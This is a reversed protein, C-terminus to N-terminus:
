SLCMTERCLTDFLATRRWERAGPVIASSTNAGHIAAIMRPKPQRVGRLKDYAMSTVTATTARNSWETDEGTNKAPFPRREWAERWYMLSTGIPDHAPNAYLWAEGDKRSDWFLMEHYGVCDAGSGELLAVQEAIRNPHSWDDDDWHCFIEARVHPETYHTAAYKNGVNRLEGIRLADIGIFCPESIQENEDVHPLAGSNVILLRKGAYTQSQFSRVAREVMEARGNTLMVACVLPRTM